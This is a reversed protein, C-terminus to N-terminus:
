TLTNVFYLAVALPCLVMTSDSERWFNCNRLWMTVFTFRPKTDILNRHTDRWMQIAQWRYDQCYDPSFRQCLPLGKTHFLNRCWLLRQKWLSHKIEWPFLQKEIHEWCKWIDYNWASGHHSSTGKRKSRDNKSITRQIGRATKSESCIPNQCNTEWWNGKGENVHRLWM